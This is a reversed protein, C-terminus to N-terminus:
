VCIKIMFNKRAKELKGAAAVVVVVVIVAVVVTADYCVSLFTQQQVPVTALFVAVSGRSLMEFLLFRDPRSALDVHRMM